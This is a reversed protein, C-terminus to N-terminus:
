QSASPNDLLPTLDIEAERLLLTFSDANKDVAFVWELYNTEEEDVVTSRAMQFDAESIAGNEDRVEADWDSLELEDNSISIEAQVVLLTDSQSKPSFENMSTRYIDQITASDIQLQVGAITVPSDIGPTSGIGCSTALLAFLLLSSLQRTKM